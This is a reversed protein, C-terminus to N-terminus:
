ITLYPEDDEESGGEKDNDYDKWLTPLPVLRHPYIDNLAMTLESAEEIRITIPKLRLICFPQNRRM